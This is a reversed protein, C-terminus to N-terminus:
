VSTPGDTAGDILGAAACGAVAAAGLGFVGAFAVAGAVAPALDLVAFLVVADGAAGVTCYLM